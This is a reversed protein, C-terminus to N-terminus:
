ALVMAGTLIMSAGIASLVGPIVGFWAADYAAAFILTGYFIPAVFSADAIKMSLTFLNQASVM